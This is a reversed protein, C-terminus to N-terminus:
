SEPYFLLCTSSLLRAISVAGIVFLLQNNHDELLFKQSENTLKFRTLFYYKLINKEKVRIYKLRPLIFLNIKFNNM